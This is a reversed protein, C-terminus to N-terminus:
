PSRSQHLCQCCPKSTDVTQSQSLFCPRASATQYIERPQGSLQLFCKIAEVLYGPSGAKKRRRQGRPFSADISSGRQSGPWHCCGACGQLAPRWGLLGAFLASSGPIEYIFMHWSLLSSCWGVGSNNWCKKGLVPSPPEPGYKNSDSCHGSKFLPMAKSPFWDVSM